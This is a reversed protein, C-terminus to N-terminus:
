RYRTRPSPPSPDVPSLGSPLSTRLRELTATRIQSVRTASLGIMDGIQENSYCKGDEGLGYSYSIIQRQRTPLQSCASRLARAADARDVRIGPQQERHDPLTELITPLERDKTMEGLGRESSEVKGYTWLAYPLDQKLVMNLFPGFSGREPKYKRLIRDSEARATSLVEDLSIHPPVHAHALAANRRICCDETMKITGALLAAQPTQLFRAIKEERARREDGNVGDHLSFSMSLDIGRKRQLAFWQSFLREQIAKRLAYMKSDPSADSLAAAAEEIAFRVRALEDKDNRYQEVIGEASKGFAIEDLLAAFRPKHPFKGNMNYTRVFQEWLPRLDAPGHFPCASQNSFETENPM